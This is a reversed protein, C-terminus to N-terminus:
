APAESQRQLERALRPLDQAAHQLDDWAHRRAAIRMSSIADGADTLTNDVRDRLADLDEHPPQISSFTSEVSTIDSEASDLVVNVYTAFTKKERVLKAALQATSVASLGSKASSRAKLM